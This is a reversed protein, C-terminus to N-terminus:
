EPLVQGDPLAVARASETEEAARRRAAVPVDALMDRVRKLYHAPTDGGEPMPPYRGDRVAKADDLLLRGLEALLEQFKPVPRKPKYSSALGAAKTQRDILRSLGWYWGLRVAQGALQASM